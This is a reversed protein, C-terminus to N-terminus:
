YICPDLRISNQWLKSIDANIEETSYDAYNYTKYNTLYTTEVVQNTEPNQCRPITQGEEGTCIGNTMGMSETRLDPNLSAYLPLYTNPDVISSTYITAYEWTNFEENYTPTWRCAFEITVSDGYDHECEGNKCTFGEECANNCAGCNAEDNTLNVCNDNCSTLNSGCKCQGNQCSYGNQSNCANGCSGCNNNNTLPNICTKDCCTNDCTQNGCLPTADQIDNDDDNDSIVIDTDTDTNDTDNNDEVLDILTKVLDKGKYGSQSFDKFSSYGDKKKEQCSCCCSWLIGPNTFGDYPRTTFDCSKQKIKCGAGRSECEFEMNSYEELMAKSPIDAINKYGLFPIYIANNCSKRESEEETYKPCNYSGCSLSCAIRDSSSTGTFDSKSSMYTETISQSDYNEIAGANSYLCPGDGEIYSKSYISNEKTFDYISCSIRLAYNKYGSAPCNKRMEAVDTELQSMFADYNGTEFMEANAILFKPFALLISSVRSSNKDPLLSFILHAALYRTQDSYSSNEDISNLALFLEYIKEKDDITLNNYKSVCLDEIIGDAGLGCIKKKCQEKSVSPILQFPSINLNLTTPTTITSTTSNTTNAATTKNATDINTQRTQIKDYTLPIEEESLYSELTNEKHKIFRTLMEAMQGRTFKQDFAMIDPPIIRIDSADKVSNEYWTGESTPYSAGYAITMIKLAEVFTVAQQPRFNGGSYGQVIGKEKAACVYKTFWVNPPVDNFCNSSSFTELYENSLNSELVIKLLEARNITKDPKYTGDSYGQVINRSSIFEIAEQYTHNNIDSLVSTKLYEPSEGYFQM